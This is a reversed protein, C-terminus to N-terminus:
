TLYPHLYTLFPFFYHERRIECNVGELGATGFQQQEFPEAGYQDLRSLAPNLVLSVLSCGLAGVACPAGSLTIPSENM